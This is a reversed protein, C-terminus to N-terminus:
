DAAATEAPAPSSAASRPLHTPAVDAALPLTVRFAAGAGPDSAVAIAGGHAEAIWRAIALGLGSGGADRSRADDGRYFRDFIRPLDAPAIGIGTDIM